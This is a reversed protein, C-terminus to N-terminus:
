LSKWTICACPLFILYYLPGQFSFVTGVGGGERIGNGLHKKVIDIKQIKKTALKRGKFLM